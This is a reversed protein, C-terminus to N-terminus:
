SLLIKVPSIRLQFSTPPGVQWYFDDYRIHISGGYLNEGGPLSAFSILSSKTVLSEVM